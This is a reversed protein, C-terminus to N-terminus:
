DNLPDYDLAPPPPPAAAYAPPAVYGPPPTYAPAAPTAPTAPPLISGPPPPVNAAAGNGSKAFMGAPDYKADIKVGSFDKKPDSGGGALRDDDGIIMINQLGFGAGKKRNEYTYINMKVIAWVGPYVRAEDVIPNIATDVVQPKFQSNVAICQLGPTYGPYQQSQGQDHFPWHLGFPQGDQGFNRPFKEKCAAVWAPWLLANIQADAGFPFLLTCNYKESQDDSDDRKRKQPAFVNVFSLRVPCSTFSGDEVKTIPNAAVSRVIWEVPMRSNKMMIM